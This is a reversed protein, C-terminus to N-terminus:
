RAPGRPGPQAVGVVEGPLKGGDECCSSSSSSPSSDARARGARGRSSGCPGARRAPWSPRRRVPRAPAGDVRRRTAAAARRRSARARRRPSGTGVRARPRAACGAGVEGAGQARLRTHRSRDQEVLGDTGTPPQQVGSGDVCLRRCGRPRGAGARDVHATRRQVGSQLGASRSRGQQTGVSNDGAGSRGPERGACRRSGPMSSESRVSRPDRSWLGRPHDAGAGPWRPCRHRPRRDRGAPGRHARLRLRRLEGRDAVPTVSKPIVQRGQQLHWRLMVQAATKGHEAAIAGIM